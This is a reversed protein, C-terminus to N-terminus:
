PRPPLPEGEVIYVLLVHERMFMDILRMRYVALAGTALTVLHDEWDGHAARVRERIRRSRELISSDRTPETPKVDALSEQAVTAFHTFKTAFDSMSTSAGPLTRRQRAKAISDRDHIEVTDGDMLQTDDGEPACPLSDPPASAPVATNASAVPVHAARSELDDQTAVEAPLTIDFGAPPWATRM